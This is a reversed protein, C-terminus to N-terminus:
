SGARMTQSQLSLHNELEELSALGSAFAAFELMTAISETDRLGVTAIDESFPKPSFHAPDFVPNAHVIKIGRVVPLKARAAKVVGAVTLPPDNEWGDSVILLLEPLTEMADIIPEALATQGGAVQLFPYAPKDNNQGQPAWYVRSSESSAEFLYVTAMAIALPRNAKARSGSSSQSIDAVIAVTKYKLQTNAVVRRASDQLM